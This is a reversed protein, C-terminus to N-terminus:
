KKAERKMEERRDLPYMKQYRHNGEVHFLVGKMTDLMYLQEVSSGGAGGFGKKEFVYRGKNYRETLLVFALIPLMVFLMVLLGIGIWKALDPDSVILHEALKELAGM